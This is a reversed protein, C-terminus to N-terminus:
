IEGSMGKSFTRGPMEFKVSMGKSFTRGPTEIKVSMKALAAAPHRLKLLCGKTFTSSPKEFKVSM